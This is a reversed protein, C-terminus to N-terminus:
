GRTKVDVDANDKKFPRGRKKAVAIQEDLGQDKFVQEGFNASTYKDLESQSSFERGDMNCVYKRPANEDGDNIPVVEIMKWGAPDPEGTPMLKMPFYQGKFDVADDYDMVVFQNVKINLMKGKFMENHDLGDRHRNYVKAKM